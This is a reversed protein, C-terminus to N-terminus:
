RYINNIVSSRMHIDRMYIDERTNQVRRSEDIMARKVGRMLRVLVDSHRGRGDDTQKRKM